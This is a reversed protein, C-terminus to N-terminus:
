ENMSGAARRKAGSYVQDMQRIMKHRDEDSGICHRDVWLYQYGLTLVVRISDDVVTSFSGTPGEPRSAGWVYSLAVYRCRRPAPVVSRTRCDIVRLGAVQRGQESPRCSLHSRECHSIAAQFKAYDVRRPHIKQFQFDPNDCGYSQHQADYVVLGGNNLYKTYVVNSICLLPFPHRYSLKGLVHPKNYWSASRVM